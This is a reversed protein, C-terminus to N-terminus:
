AECPCVTGLYEEVFQIAHQETAFKIDVRRNKFMKLSQVKQCGPFDFESSDLYYGNILKALAGPITSFGGTEFHAIGKLVDKVGDTLEWSGNARYYSRFSCAYHTFQLTSKKRTYDARKQYTNWATRRCNKKLEYLAQEAFARGGTQLFIQELIDNYHLTLESLEQNYKKTLEICNDTWKDPPKQPLLNAEVDQSSISFHYTISFYSVLHGIFLSHLSCLQTQIADRSIKLGDPSLLYNTSAADTPALLEKQQNVMDNWFYELEKLAAGANEYASQHAECFIRDAESIRTDARIEVSEFKELLDM